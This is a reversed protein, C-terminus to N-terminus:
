ETSDGSMIWGVLGGFVALAVVVALVDQDLWNPIRWGFPTAAIFIWGVLLVLVIMVVPKIWGHDESDLIGPGWGFMGLIILVGLLAILLLMTQPLAKEIVPVIDYKSGPMVHHPLISLLGIVLAIVVHYKKKENEDDEGFLKVNQLIGFVVAFILAFILVEVLGNRMLVDIGQNIIGVM